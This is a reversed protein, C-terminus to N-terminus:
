PMRSRTRDRPSPSTYLLCHWSLLVKKGGYDALHIPRKRNDNLTFDPATDGVAIRNIEEMHEEQTHQRDSLRCAMNETHGDADCTDVRCTPSGERKVVADMSAHRRQSRQGHPPMPAAENTVSATIFNSCKQAMINDLKHGIYHHPSLICTLHIPSMYQGGCGPARCTQQLSSFWFRLNLYTRPM